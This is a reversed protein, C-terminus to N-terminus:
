PNKVYRGALGISAAPVLDGNNRTLELTGFAYDGPDLNTVAFGAFRAASAPAPIDFWQYDATSGNPRLGARKWTESAPMDVIAAGNPLSVTVASKGSQSEFKVEVDGVARKADPTVVAAAWIGPRPRKDPNFEQRTMLRFQLPGHRSTLLVRAGKVEWVGVSRYEGLSSLLIWNFTGDQRLTLGSGLFKDSHLNYNGVLAQRDAAPSAAASLSIAAALICTMARM